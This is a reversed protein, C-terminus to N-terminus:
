AAAFCRACRVVSAQEALEALASAVSMAVDMVAGVAGIIIAAFVVGKLDIPQATGLDLLFQTEQSVLGSLKLLETMLLTIAGSALVGAACGIIATLTKTTAGNVLLLTSVVTYICVMVACYYINYGALVMPVFVVFVAACTFLLSLITHFGKMRGFVLIMGLFVLCFVALGDSRMYDGMMYTTTALPDPNLYLSVKDGVEIEEMQGGFMGDIVQEALLTEGKQEGALGQAFFRIHVSQVMDTTTFGQQEQVERSSISIVRAKVLSADGFPPFLGGSQMAMRNGAYLFAVSFIVTVLYLVRRAMKESVYDKSKM